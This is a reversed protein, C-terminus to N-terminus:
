VLAVNETYLDLLQGQVKVARLLTWLQDPSFVIPGNTAISELEEAVAAYQDTAVELRFTAARWALILRGDDDFDALDSGSGLLLLCMRAIEAPPLDPRLLALREALEHCTMLFRLNGRPSPLGNQIM